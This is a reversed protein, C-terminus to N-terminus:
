FFRRMSVTRKLLWLMHKPQSILFIIKQYTDKAIPRSYFLFSVSTCNLIEVIAWQILFRICLQDNIKNKSLFIPM